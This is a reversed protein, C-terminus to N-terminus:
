LTDVLWQYEAALGAELGITPAFGLDAHAEALPRRATGGPVAWGSWYRYSLPLSDSSLLFHSVARSNKL